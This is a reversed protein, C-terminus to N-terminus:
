VVLHAWYPLAALDILAGCAFSRSESVNESCARAFDTACSGLTHCRRRRSCDSRYSTYSSAEPGPLYEAVGISQWVFSTSAQTEMVPHKVTIRMETKLPVQFRCLM